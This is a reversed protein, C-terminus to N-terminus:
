QNTTKVSNIWRRITCRAYKKGDKEFFSDQSNFYPEIIWGENPKESDLIIQAYMSLELTRDNHYDRVWGNPLLFEFKSNEHKKGVKELGQVQLECPTYGVRGLAASLQNPTLRVKVFTANAVDDEIEIDTYERNILITIKGKLKM